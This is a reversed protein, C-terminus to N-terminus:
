HQGQPAAAPGDPEPGTRPPLRSYDWLMLRTRCREDGVVGTLQWDTLFALSKVPSLTLAALLLPRRATVDWLHAQDQRSITALRAGTPTFSASKACYVKNEIKFPEGRDVPSADALAETAAGGSGDFMFHHAGHNFQVGGVVARRGDDSIAMPQSDQRFHLPRATPPTQTLDIAVGPIKRGNHRSYPVVLLRSGDASFLARGPKLDKLETRTEAVAGAAEIRWRQLVAPPLMDPQLVATIASSLTLMTTADALVRGACFEMGPEAQFPRAARSPRAFDILQGRASGLSAALGHRPSVISSSAHAFSGRGEMQHQCEVWERARVLGYTSVGEPHTVRLQRGALAVDARAVLAPKKPADLPRWSYRNSATDHTLLLGSADIQCDALLTNAHAAIDANTPHDLARLQMTTSYHRDHIAVFEGHPVVFGGQFVHKEFGLFTAFTPPRALIRDYAASALLHLDRRDAASARTVNPFAPLPASQAQTATGDLTAKKRRGSAPPTLGNAVVRALVDEQRAVGNWTSDISRARAWDPAQLNGLVEAILEQPLDGIGYGQQAHGSTAAAQRPRSSPPRGYPDTVSLSTPRPM